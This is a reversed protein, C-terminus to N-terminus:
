FFFVRTDVKMFIRGSPTSDKCSSLRVSPFVSMVFSITAKRLKTFADLVEGFHQQRANIGSTVERNTVFQDCREIM